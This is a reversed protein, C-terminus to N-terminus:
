RLYWRSNEIPLFRRDTHHQLQDRFRSSPRIRLTASSADFAGQGSVGLRAHLLGDAGINLNIEPHIRRFPLKYVAGQPGFDSARLRKSWRELEPFLQREPFLSRRKAPGVVHGFLRVDLVGDVPVVRGDAARPFVFLKLGDAEVDDDWNAVVGEIHLSRVRRDGGRTRRNDNVKRWDPATFFSDNSLESKWTPVLQRLDQDSLVRDRHRASVIREWEFGSRLVIAPATTRLWLRHENTRADVEGAVSRGDDLRVVVQGWAHAPNGWILVLSSSSILSVAWVWLIQLTPKM